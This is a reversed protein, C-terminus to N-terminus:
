KTNNHITPTAETNTKTYGSSEYKSSEFIQNNCNQRGRMRMPTAHCDTHVNINYEGDPWKIIEIKVISILARSLSFFDHMAQASTWVEQTRRKEIRAM